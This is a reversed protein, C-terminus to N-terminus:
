KLFKKLLGGVLTGVSDKKSTSKKTSSKKSKSGTGLFSGLLDSIDVNGLLSGMLEGIGSGGSSGVQKGLISMLLPGIASLINGTKQSSVGTKESIAKTTSSKEKGLLHGIIKAGDELDINKLFGKIDSTDVKAHDLLAKTFGEATDGNQAQKEAGSLLKPLAEAVVKKVDKQSAGSAKSLTKLSDSSLLESLLNQIDM